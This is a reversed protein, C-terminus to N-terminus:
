GPLSFIVSYEASNNDLKVEGPVKKVDVKLTTQTGFTVSGVNEFKVVQEEGPNIIQITQTKVIPNGANEITLTVPIQVEQSDGSDKVTVEFGLDLTSTVTNLSGVTLTQGSPVARVSVINTGHLGTVVGDGTGTSAGRIRELVLEMSAGTVLDSSVFSSEPVRVGTIGDALMSRSSPEKFLDDWVVDSAVLREAQESLLAADVANDKSTATSKFTTALGDVGSVRLQLAEILHSHEERLKGPPDLDQAAQVNQREQAAIGRLKTEIQDVKLGPTTLATAVSKGNNTSQAAIATAESMYDAYTNKSSGTCSKISLALGLMLIVVLVVLGLLRLMPAMGQAPGRPAGDKRRPARPLRVRSLSQTESTAPEDDFFDFEIDDDRPEM